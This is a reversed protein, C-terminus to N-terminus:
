FDEGNKIAKAVKIIQKGIALMEDANRAARIRTDGWHFFISPDGPDGERDYEGVSFMLPECEAPCRPMRHPPYGEAIKAVYWAKKEEDSPQKM